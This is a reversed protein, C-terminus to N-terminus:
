LWAAYIKINLNHTICLAKWMTEFLLCFALLESPSIVWNCYLSCWAVQVCILKHRSSYFLLFRWLILSQTVFVSSAVLQWEEHWWAQIVWRQTTDNVSKKCAPPNHAKYLWQPTNKTDVKTTATSATSIFQEDRLGTLKEAWFHPSLPKPSALNAGMPIDSESILDPLSSWTWILWKRFPLTIVTRNNFKLQLQLVSTWKRVSQVVPNSIVIKRYSKVESTSGDM